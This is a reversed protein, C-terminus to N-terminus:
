AGEDASVVGAAEVDARGGVSLEGMRPLSGAVNANLWRMGAIEADTLAPDGEGRVVNGQQDVLLADFPDLWGDLMAKTLMDVLRRQGLAIGSGLELRVVGSGMGWWYNIARGRLRADARGGDGRMVDLLLRYYRAWDWVPRGLVEIRGDHVSYLGFPEDPATPDPYDRDSVVDVGADILEGQWNESAALWKLHVTAYPDVLAAGLAFANVEAVAGNIPSFALYGLQKSKSLSAALAGMLFKVEYMRGYYTLVSGHPLNVSCNAFALAPHALAARVTSANQRPSVSFVYACGSREAAEVADEFQDDTACSEFLLTEVGGQSEEELRRRGEDHLACWGSTATTRDYVFAVRTVKQARVRAVVKRVVNDAREDPAAVFAVPEPNSAVVLELWMRRLRGEMLQCTAELPNSTAYAELYVVFADSATCALSHGGCRAYARCFTAFGAKLRRLDEEPWETELDHGLLRALRAYDAAHSLDIGYMPAVRYFREFAAYSALRDDFGMGRPPVVRTVDATITPMGVFRAVSVRKNGELVYFHQLFERVVIPDRFGEAVQSDMLRSWKACLETGEEALPMFGSSFMNQRGRTCTGVIHDLPIECLGVHTERAFPRERMLDDLAPLFPDRGDSLADKVQRRGYRAARRYDEIM